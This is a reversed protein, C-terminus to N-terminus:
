NKEADGSHSFFRRTEHKKEQVPFVRESHQTGGLAFALPIPPQSYSTLLKPEGDPLVPLKTPHGLFRIESIERREAARYPHSKSAQRDCAPISAPKL